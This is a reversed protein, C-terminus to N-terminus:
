ITIVITNATLCKAYEELLTPVSFTKPCLVLIDITGIADPSNSILTPVCKYVIENSVLELGNKEIGKLSAGRSIFVIDVTDVTAYYHALTGGIYGGIGGIGAIAIKIKRNDFM